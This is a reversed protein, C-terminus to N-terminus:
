PRRFRHVMSVRIRDALLEPDALSRAEALAEKMGTAFRYGFFEAEEEHRVVDPDDARLAVHLGTDTQEVSPPGAPDADCISAVVTRLAGPMQGEGARSAAPGHGTLSGCHGEFMHWVEHGIIVLQHDLDTNEEYAIVDHSARDIWLGSAIEPPFAVAHLRVPRGRVQEVARGVAAVVDEDGDPAVVAAFLRASLRRM